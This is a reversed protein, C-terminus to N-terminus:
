RPARRRRLRRLAPGRGPDDVFSPDGLYANRDAYALRSAELYHYCSPAATSGVGRRQLGALINLAELVTTGGSSPPGM